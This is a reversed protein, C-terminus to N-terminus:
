QSLGLRARLERRVREAQRLAAAMQRKSARKGPYRIDVAYRSLSVLGRTLKKLNPEHPLLLTLLDDLNHIRPVPLGM